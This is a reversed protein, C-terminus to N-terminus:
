QKERQLCKLWYTNIGNKAIYETSIAAAQTKCRERDSAIALIAEALEFPTGGTRGGHELAANGPYTNKTAVIPKASAIAESVITSGRVRYAHEEYPMLVTDSAHLLSQYDAESLPDLLLEAQGKPMANLKELTELIEPARGVIQPSAHLIFKLTTPDVNECAASDALKFTHQIIDPIHHFGKEVRASGLSVVLFSHDPVSLRNRRFEQGYALKQVSPAYVPVDLPAVEIAWLSTLHEALYRNEAYLYLKSNILGMKQVSQLAEAIDEANDRNPMVGVPDYPTAIHFTPMRSADISAILRPIALMSAGDGTHMFVRDNEGIGYHEIAAIMDEYFATVLCIKTAKPPLASKTFLRNFWSRKQNWMAKKQTIYNQYMSASFTPAIDVGDSELGGAFDKACLWTVHFGATQASITTARTMMYHHGRIDKLSPDVIFLRPMINGM